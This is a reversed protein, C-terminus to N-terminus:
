GSKKNVIVLHIKYYKDKSYKYLVEKTITKKDGLDLNFRSIINRMIPPISDTNKDEWIVLASGFDKPPHFDIKADPTMVFSDQFNLKLDGGIIYNEALILGKSFGERKIM